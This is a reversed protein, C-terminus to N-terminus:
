AEGGQGRTAAKGARPRAVHVRRRPAEGTGGTGPPRRRRWALASAFLLMFPLYAIGAALYRPEDLLSLAVVMALAFNQIGVEISVTAAQRPDLRLVRAALLAGGMAGGLLLLVAASSQVFIRGLDVESAALRVPLAVVLLLLVATSANLLPGRWRAALAPRLRRLAMGALVPAATTLLLPLVTDRVPLSVRAAELDLLGTGVALVLPLHLFAVLSSVATLSISLALDGRALHSFANSTAGGPCAAILLLGVAVSPELPLLLALLIALLPLWVLQGLVGALAARPERVVRRFDDAALGLGMALMMAFLTASPVHRVWTM